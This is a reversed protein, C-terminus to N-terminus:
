SGLAGRLTTEVIEREDDEREQVHVLPEPLREDLATRVLAVVQAQGLSEVEWARHGAGDRGDVKWMPAIGQAHEETLGIRTWDLEVGSADELTRRTNAEIDHGSRDCDGLYLVRGSQAAVPAVMTRLFGASQGKTGAVPCVYESVMAELVSAMGKSETLIIPPPEDGWPNITAGALRDLMYDAVTAAYNWRAISRETDAIWDWPITGGNRLRTVADTIDQSGPPWGISRRRNPRADAPDPKRALGRQELEYFLFRITTPLAGETGHERLVDLVARETRAKKTPRGAGPRTRDRMGGWGVPRRSERALRVGLFRLRPGRLLEVTRKAIAEVDEPHLRALENV